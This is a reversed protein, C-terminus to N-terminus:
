IKRKKVLEVHSNFTKFDVGFCKKTDILECCYYHIKSQQEAWSTLAAIKLELEKIKKDCDCM